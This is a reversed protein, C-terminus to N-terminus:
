ESDKCGCPLDRTFEDKLKCLPLIKFLYGHYSSGLHKCKRKRCEKSNMAKVMENLNIIHNRTLVSIVISSEEYRM